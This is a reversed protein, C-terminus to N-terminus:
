AFKVQVDERDSAAAQFLEHPRLRMHGAILSDPIQAIRINGVPGSLEHSRVGRDSM